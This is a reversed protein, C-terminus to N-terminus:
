CAWLLPFTLSKKSVFIFDIRFPRAVLTEKKRRKNRPTEKGQLNSPSATLFGTKAMRGKKM